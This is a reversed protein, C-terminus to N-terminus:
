ASSSQPSPEPLTAPQIAEGEARLSPLDADSDDAGEEEGSMVGFYRRRAHDAEAREEELALREDEALLAIEEPSCEREYDAEGWQGIEFGDFGPPPPLDTKWEGCDDKWM